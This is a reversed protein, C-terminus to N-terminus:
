KLIHFSFRLFINLLKDMNTKNLLTLLNQDKVQTCSRWPVQAQAELLGEFGSTECTHLPECLCVCRSKHSRTQRPLSLEQHKILDPVRLESASSTNQTSKTVIHDSTHPSRHSLTYFQICPFM